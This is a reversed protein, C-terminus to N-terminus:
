DALPDEMPGHRRKAEFDALAATYQADATKSDSIVALHALQGMEANADIMRLAEEPDAAGPAFETSFLAKFLYSPLDLSEDFVCTRTPLPVDAVAKILAPAPQKQETPGNEYLIYASACDNQALLSHQHGRAHHCQSVDATPRIYRKAQFILPVIRTVQVQKGMIPQTSNDDFQLIIGFDGGTAQEGGLISLDIRDLSLTTQSRNLPGAAIKRWVTCQQSIKGLLLGSLLDERSPSPCDDLQFSASGDLLAFFFCWVAINKFHVPDAMIRTLFGDLSQISEPRDRSSMILAIRGAESCAEPWIAALADRIRLSTTPSANELISLVLVAKASSLLKRTESNLHSIENGNLGFQDLLTM